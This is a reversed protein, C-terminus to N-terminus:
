EDEEIDPLAAMIRQRAASIEEPTSELPNRPQTIEVQANDVFGLGSNKLVFIGSVVNCAGTDMAMQRAAAWGTRVTDLYRATESEAHEELFRYLRRRSLGLSCALLEINPLTGLAACKSMLVETVAKVAVSDNLDTRIPAKTLLDASTAVIQGVIGSRVAATETAGGYGKKDPQDLPIINNKMGKESGKM